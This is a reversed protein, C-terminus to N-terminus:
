RALSSTAPDGLYAMFAWFCKGTTAAIGLPDAVGTARQTSADICPFGITCRRPRLIEVVKGALECYARKGIKFDLVNTHFAKCMPYLQKLIARKTADNGNTYYQDYVYGDVVFELAENCLSAVDIGSCLSGVTDSGDKLYHVHTRHSAPAHRELNDFMTRWYLCLEPHPVDRSTSSVDFMADPQGHSM